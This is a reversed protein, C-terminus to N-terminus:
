ISPKSVAYPQSQDFPKRASLASDNCALNFHKIDLCVLCSTFSCNGLTIERRNYMSTSVLNLFDNVSKTPLSTFSPKSASNNLLLGRLTSNAHSHSSSFRASPALWTRM